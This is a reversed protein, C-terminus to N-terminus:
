SHGNISYMMKLITDFGAARSAVTLCVPILVPMSTASRQLHHARALLLAEQVAVKGLVKALIVTGAVVAAAVALVLKARGVGWM